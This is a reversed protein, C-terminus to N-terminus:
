EVIIIQNPSMVNQQQKKRALGEKVKESHVIKYNIENIIRMNEVGIEFPDREQNNNDM